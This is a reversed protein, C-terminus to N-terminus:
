GQEGFVILDDAELSGHDCDMGKAGRHGDIGDDEVEDMAEGELNGEM